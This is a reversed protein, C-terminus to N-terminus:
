RVKEHHVLIGDEDNCGDDDSKEKWVGQVGV